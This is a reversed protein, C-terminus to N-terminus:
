LQWRLRSGVLKAGDVEDLGEDVIDSLHTRGSLSTGGSVSNSGVLVSWDACLREAVLLQSYLVDPTCSTARCCFDAVVHQDSMVTIRDQAYLTASSM